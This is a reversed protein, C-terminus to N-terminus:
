GVYLRVICYAAFAHRLPLVPVRWRPLFVNLGYAAAYAAAVPWSEKLAMPGVLVAEGFRDAAWDVEPADEGNQRAVVGDLTDLLLAALIAALAWGVHDAMYAGAAALCLWASVRTVETASFPFRASGLVRDAAVKRAHTVQERLAM